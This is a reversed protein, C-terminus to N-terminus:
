LGSIFSCGIQGLVGFRGQLRSADMYGIMIGVLTAGLAYAIQWPGTLNVLAGFLMALGDLDIEPDPFDFWSYM